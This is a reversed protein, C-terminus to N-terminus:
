TLTFLHPLLEGTESTVEFAPYVKHPSLDLIGPHRKRYLTAREVRLTPQHIQPAFRLSSLHYLSSQLVSDPKYIQIFFTLM